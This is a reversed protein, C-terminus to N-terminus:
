RSWWGFEDGVKTISISTGCCMWEVGHVVNNTHIPRFWAQALEDISFSLMDFYIAFTETTLMNIAHRIVHTFDISNVLSVCACKGCELTRPWVVFLFVVWCIIAGHLTVSPLKAFRQTHVNKKGTRNMWNSSWSCNVAVFISCSTVSDWNSAFRTAFDPLDNPIESHKINRWFFVLNMSDM